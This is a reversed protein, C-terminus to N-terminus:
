NKRQRVVESPQNPNTTKKIATALELCQKKLADRDKEESQALLSLKEGLEILKEVCGGEPTKNHTYGYYEDCYFAYTAGTRYRTKTRDSYKTSVLVSTWANEMAITFDIDIPIECRKLDNSLDVSYHDNPDYRYPHQPRIKRKFAVYKLSIQRSKVEYYDQRIEEYEIIEDIIVASQGGVGPFTIIWLRPATNNLLASFIASDYSTCHVPCPELHDQDAHARLSTFSLLAFSAAILHILKRKM